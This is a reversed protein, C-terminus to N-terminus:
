GGALALRESSLGLFVEVEGLIGLLDPSWTKSDTRLSLLDEILLPCEHRQMGQLHKLEVCRKSINAEFEIVAVDRERMVASIVAPIFGNNAPVLLMSPSARSILTESAAFLRMASLLLSRLFRDHAKNNLDPASCGFRNSFSGEVLPFIEVGRYVLKTLADAALANVTRASEQVVEPSVGLSLRESGVGSWNALESQERMCQFCSRVTRRWNQDSDRDCSSFVGNCLLQSVKHERGSLYRGVLYLLGSEPDRQGTPSLLLISM